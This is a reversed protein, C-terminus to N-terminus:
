GRREIEALAIRAEDPDAAAGRELAEIVDDLARGSGTFVWRGDRLVLAPASGGCVGGSNDSHM